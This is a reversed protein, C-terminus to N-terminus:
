RKGLKSIQKKIEQHAQHSAYLYTIMYTSINSLLMLAVALLSVSWWTDVKTIISAIFGFIGISFFQVIYSLSVIGITDLTDEGKAQLAINAKRIHALTSWLEFLTYIEMVIIVSITGNDIAM